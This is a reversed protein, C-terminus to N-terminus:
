SNLASLATILAETILRAIDQNQPTHGYTAEARRLRPWPEPSCLPLLRTYRLLASPFSDPPDWM